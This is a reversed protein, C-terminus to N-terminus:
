FSSSKATASSSFASTATTGHEPKPMFFKTRQDYAAEISFM